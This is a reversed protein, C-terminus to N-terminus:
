FKEPVKEPGKEATEPRRALQANAAFPLETELVLQEKEVRHRDAEAKRKKGPHAETAGLAPDLHM